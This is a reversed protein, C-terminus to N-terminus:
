RINIYYPTQKVIIYADRDAVYKTTYGLKWLVAMIGDMKGDVYEIKKEIRHLKTTDGAKGAEEHKNDLKDMRRYLNTYEKGFYLLMENDM